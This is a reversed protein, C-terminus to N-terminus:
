DKSALESFVSQSTSVVVANVETKYFASFAASLTSVIQEQTAYRTAAEHVQVIALNERIARCGRHSEAGARIASTTTDLVDDVQVHSLAAREARVIGEYM